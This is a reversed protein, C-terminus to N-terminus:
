IIEKKQLYQILRFANFIGLPEDSCDYAFEMIATDDYEGDIWGQVIDLLNENYEKYDDPELDETTMIEIKFIKNLIYRAERITIDRKRVLGCYFGNAMVKVKIPSLKFVQTKNKM